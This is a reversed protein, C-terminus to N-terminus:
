KVMQKRITESDRGQAIDMKKIMKSIETDVKNPNKRKLERYKKRWVEYMAQTGLKGAQRIINQPTTSVEATVAAMEPGTSAATAVAAAAASAIRKQALVYEAIAIGVAERASRAANKIKGQWATVEIAFQRGFTPTFDLAWRAAEDKVIGKFVNPEIYDLPFPLQWYNWSNDDVISDLEQAEIPGSMTKGLTSSIETWIGGPWKVTMNMAENAIQRYVSLVISSGHQQIAGGVNQKSSGLFPGRAGLVPAPTSLIQVSIKGKLENRASLIVRQWERDRNEKLMRLKRTILTRVEAPMKQYNVM